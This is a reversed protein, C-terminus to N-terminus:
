HRGPSRGPGHAALSFAVWSGVGAHRQAQTEIGVKAISFSHRCPAFGDSGANALSKADSHPETYACNARISRLEYPRFNQDCHYRTSNVSRQEWPSNAFPGIARDGRSALTHSDSRLGNGSLCGIGSSRSAGGRRDTASSTYGHVLSQSFRADAREVGKQCGPLANGGKQCTHTM